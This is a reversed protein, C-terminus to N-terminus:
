RIIICVIIIIIFINIPKVTIAITNLMIYAIPLIVARIVRMSISEAYQKNSPSM